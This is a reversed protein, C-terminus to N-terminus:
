VDFFVTELEGQMHIDLHYEIRNNIEKREAILTARREAPVSNLVADQANAVVEDSFYLRSYAHVLLGRMLIILVLHPAQDDISKPKVTEFHFRFQPDTGTGFRGFGKIDPQWIEMMADPIPMGQGDFLRGILHIREGPTGEKAIIGDAIQTFDYHYQEATLGYAFFPGVTQSATQLPSGAHDSEQGINQLSM